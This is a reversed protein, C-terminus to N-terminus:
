ENMVENGDAWIRIRTNDNGTEDEQEHVILRSINVRKVGPREPAPTVDIDEISYTIDPYHPKM